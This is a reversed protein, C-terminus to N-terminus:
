IKKLLKAPNGAYIGAITLNKTVVSYGGVIIDDAIEVCQYAMTSSAIFCRDGVKVCGNIVSNTSIHCYNGIEADHEIIAQTNIICNKGINAAANVIAAHMIITGEAISAHKSVIANPSIITALNGGFKKVLDFLKIRLDPSKIQGITILFQYNQAVLKEILDDNGIIPYGLITENETYNNDLIGCIEYKKTTEIVDICSKCHTGGGILILKQM